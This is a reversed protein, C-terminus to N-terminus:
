SASKSPSAFRVRTEVLAQTLSENVDGPTRAGNLCRDSPTSLMKSSLPENRKTTFVSWIARAWLTANSLITKHPPSVAEEPSVKIGECLRTKVPTPYADMSFPSGRISTPQSAFRSRSPLLPHILVSGCKVPWRPDFNRWLRGTTWLRAANLRSKSDTSCGGAVTGSGDSTMTVHMVSFLSWRVDSVTIFCSSSSPQCYM